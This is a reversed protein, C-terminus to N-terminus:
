APKTAEEKVEPVPDWFPKPLSAFVDPPIVAMRAEYAIKPKLSHLGPAGLRADFEETGDIPKIADFDYTFPKEGLAKHIDAMTAAPFRCLDEYRVLILRNRHEGYWATRLAHLAFGLVGVPDMYTRVRNYVTLNSQGEIITSLSLPHTRFIRELSDVIHAPHRVCCIIKADPFVKALLDVNACWRRNNDFVVAKKNVAYFASFLGRLCRLRDADSVYSMSENMTGMAAHLSTFMRGTPSEISATFRPNQCLLSALLTSGSRPLGSIFHVKM